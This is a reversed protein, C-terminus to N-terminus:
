MSTGAEGDVFQRNMERVDVVQAKRRIPPEECQIIVTANMKKPIRIAQTRGNAKNVEILDSWHREDATDRFRRALAINV